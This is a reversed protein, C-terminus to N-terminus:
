TSGRFPDRKRRKQGFTTAVMPINAPPPLPPDICETPLTVTKKQGSPVTASVSTTSVLCQGKGLHKPMFISGAPITFVEDSSSSNEVEVQVWYPM